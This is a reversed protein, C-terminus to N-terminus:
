APSVVESVVLKMKAAHGSEREIEGVAQVSVATVAGAEALACEVAARVQQPLEEAAGNRPVVRVLLEPERHVIQYQRVDPLRAFPSRLRFPHVRVHGGGVAPLTLVDDSRGDVRMIRDYPRGSADAGDGLVVSDSLEYRILPQTTNVLNTLLVKSGPEGAPVPRGHEDVVEVIGEECVHMGVRELSGMAIVGLETSAYMDVPESGWAAEITRAAADTLVESVTVVVRPAIDLRGELQEEAVASVVSPYGVFVEPRYEALADVIAQMPMTVALRPAGERGAILAAAIQRSLHLPSPAGIGTLRTEGTVGVRLFGRLFVAAWHAFERRSYVFLGPVGSTGATSFLRYEDAYLEGTAAAELFSELDRRRLRADTVIDDFHEMLTSKPLTPLETLDADAADPGLTERYYESAELVHELLGRLRCRQHELLRERSWSDRELLQSAHTELARPALRPDRAAVATM